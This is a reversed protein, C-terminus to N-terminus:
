RTLGPYYAYYAYGARYQYYGPYAYYVVRPAYPAAAATYVEPRHPPNPQSVRHFSAAMAGSAHKRSHNFATLAKPHPPSPWVFPSEDAKALAAPAPSAAAAPSVAPAPSPATTPVVAAAEAVPTVAPNPSLAAVHAAQLARHQKLAHYGATGSGGILVIAGLYWMLVARITV